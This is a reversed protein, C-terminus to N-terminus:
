ASPSNTRLARERMVGCIAPSGSPERRRVGAQLALFHGLQAADADGPVGPDFLAAFHRHRGRDPRADGAHQLQRAGFAGIQELQGVAGIRLRRAVGAARWSRQAGAHVRDARGGIHQVAGPVQQGPVLGQALQEVVPGARDRAWDAASYRGPGPRARVPPPNPAARADRPPRTGRRRPRAGPRLGGHQRQRVRQVALTRHEGMPPRPRPPRAPLPQTFELVRAACSANWCIVKRNAVCGSRFSTISSSPPSRPQAAPPLAAPGSSAPGSRM